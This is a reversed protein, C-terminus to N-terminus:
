EKKQEECKNWPKNEASSCLDWVKSWPGCAPLINLITSFPVGVNWPWMCPSQLHGSLGFLWYSVSFSFFLVTSGPHECSLPLDLAFLQGRPWLSVCAFVPLRQVQVKWATISTLVWRDICYIYSVHNWDRPTSSGRSSPMAVWELIRAQVIEHVSCGPPAVTWLAQCLHLSEACVCAAVATTSSVVPPVLLALSVQPISPWNKSPCHARSLYFYELYQFVWSCPAGCDWSTERCPGRSLEWLLQRCFFWSKPRAPFPSTSGILPPWLETLFILSGLASPEIISGPGLKPWLCLFFM